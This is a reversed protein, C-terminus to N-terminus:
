CKCSQKRVVLTFKMEIGTLDADIINRDFGQITETGFRNFNKVDIATKMEEFWLKNSNIAKEIETVLNYLSQLRNQHVEKTLWKDSSSNDLLVFFVESTRENQSNLPQKKEKTPEVQWIFPVKKMENKSFTKWEENTKLPTGIFFKPREITLNGVPEVVEGLEDYIAILTLTNTEHDVSEIYFVTEEIDTVSKTERSWKLGCVSVRIRDGDVIVNKVTLLNDLKEIVEDRLIFYIDKM